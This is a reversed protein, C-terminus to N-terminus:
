GFRVNESEYIDIGPIERAGGRVATTIESDKTTLYKLLDPNEAAAKVLKTIDVTDRNWTWTKVNSAKAGTETRLPADKKVVPAPEIPAPADLGKEDAEKKLSANLKDIEERQKREIEQRALEQKKNWLRIKERCTEAVTDLRTTYAKAVGKAKKIITETDGYVAKVVENIQKGTDQAAKGISVIVRADDDTAIQLSKVRGELDLITSVQASIRATFSEVTPVVSRMVASPAAEVAESPVPEPLPHPSMRVQGASPQPSSGVDFSITM